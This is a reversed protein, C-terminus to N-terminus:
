TKYLRNKKVLIMLYYLNHLFLEFYTFDLKTILNKGAFAGNSAM